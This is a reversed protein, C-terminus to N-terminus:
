SKNVFLHILFGALSSVGSMVAMGVWIGGKGQNVMAILREVSEEMKDIKSNMRELGTQMGELIEAQKEVTKALSKNTEETSDLFKVHRDKEIEPPNAKFGAMADHFAKRAENREWREQLELLKELQEMSAGRELATQLMTAPTAVQAVATEKREIVSSM